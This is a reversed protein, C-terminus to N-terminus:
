QKDSMVNTEVELQKLSRFFLQRIYKVHVFSNHSHVYLIFYSVGLGLGTYTFYIHRYTYLIFDRYSHALQANKNDCYHKDNKNKRANSIRALRAIHREDASPLILTKRIQMALPRGSQLKRQARVKRVIDPSLNLRCLSIM